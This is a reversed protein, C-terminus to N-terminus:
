ATAAIDPSRLLATVTRAALVEAGEKIGVARFKHGIQLLAIGHIVSWLPGAVARPDQTRLLGAQQGAEIANLLVLFTHRGAPRVDTFDLAGHADDFMVKYHDPNALAWRVYGRGLRVLLDLPDRGRATIRDLAQGLVAFGQEAVEGLLADKDAFHRYPAATSVGARKAAESMTFGQPGKEAVLELAADLLARRLDGHHYSGAPKTNPTPM